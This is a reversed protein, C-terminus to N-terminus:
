TGRPDHGDRRSWPLTEDLLRALERVEPVPHLRARARADALLIWLMALMAGALFGFGTKAVLRRAVPLAPIEPAQLITIGPTDRVERLRAEERNQLLSTLVEQRLGVERQLRDRQVVLLPSVVVRNEELFRQLRDEAERLLREADQAQTDAFRRELAAQGARAEVNFRNVQALLAQALDHSAEPWKTTVSVTVSGLLKDDSARVLKRRLRRIGLETRRAPDSAEVGVLDLVPERPGGPRRTVSDTAIAGLVANSRLLEVYMPAGWGSEQGPVRLGFQSAALALGSM